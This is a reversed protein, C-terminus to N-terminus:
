NRAVDPADPIEAILRSLFAFIKRPDVPKATFLQMEEWTVLSIKGNLKSTDLQLTGAGMLDPLRVIAYGHLDTTTFVACGADLHEKCAPCFPKNKAPTLSFEKSKSGFYKGCICCPPQKLSGSDQARQSGRKEAYERKFKPIQGALNRFFSENLHESVNRYRYRLAM